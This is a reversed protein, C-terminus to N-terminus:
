GIGLLKRANNGLILDIDEGALKLSRILSIDEAQRSWPSDTGFLIKDAGHRKIFKEAREAGMEPISYATDLFVDKGLLYKEADDWYKYGGMHAAIIKAGQFTDLVRELRQPTCHFPETFAYDVGSHFLMVLGAEIVYQYINLMYPDDVYYGQCDAHFKIGKFGNDRLWFIEKKWNSYDPHLTGFSIVGEEEICVAWRNMKVTQDPKIAIPLLVGADVGAELMSKKLGSVTGDTKPIIGFKESRASISKSAVNDPFCHIHM